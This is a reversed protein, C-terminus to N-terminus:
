LGSEGWQCLCFDCFGFRGKGDMIKKGRLLVRPDMTKGSFTKRDEQLEKRLEKYTDNYWIDKMWDDELNGIKYNQYPVDLLENQYVEHRRLNALYTCAYVDNNLLVFPNIFPDYCPTFTPVDSCTGVVLLNAEKTLRNFREITGRHLSLDPPNGFDLSDQQAKMYHIGTAGVQEAQKIYQPLEDVVVDSFLVVNMFLQIKSAGVLECNRLTQWYNGGLKTKEYTDKTAGDFSIHIRTMGHEQLFQIYEEDLLTGNSTMMSKIGMQKCFKMLDRFYPNM